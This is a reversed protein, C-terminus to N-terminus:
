TFFLGPPFSVSLLTVFMLYIFAFVALGCLIALKWSHKGQFRIFVLLFIPITYLFGLLMVLVLLLFLWAIIRLEIQWKTKHVRDTENLVQDPLDIGHVELRAAAKPGILVALKLILLVFLVSIVILPYLRGRPSYGLALIGTLVTFALLCFVFVTDPIRKKQM